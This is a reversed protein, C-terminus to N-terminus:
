FPIDDEEEETTGPNAAAKSAPQEDTDSHLEAWEPSAEVAEKVWKPLRDFQEQDHERVDYCIPEGVLPPCDAQNKIKIFGGIYWSGEKEGELINHQVSTGLVTTIDFDPWDGEFKKGRWMELDKRLNAKTGLNFTYTKSKFYPQPGNEENFVHMDEPYEFGLVVKPKSSITGKYDDEQTGIYAMMACRAPHLGTELPPAKTGSRNSPPKM